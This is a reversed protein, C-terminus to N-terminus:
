QLDQYIVEQILHFYNGVSQRTINTEEAITKILTVQSWCWLIRLARKLCIKWGFFFSGIGVSVKKGRCPATTCRLIAGDINKSYMQLLLRRTCVPCYRQLNLVGKGGLWIVLTYPTETTLLPELVDTFYAM